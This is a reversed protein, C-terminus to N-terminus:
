AKNNAVKRRETIQKGENKSEYVKEEDNDHTTTYHGILM